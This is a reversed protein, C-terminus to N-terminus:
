RCFRLDTIARGGISVKGGHEGLPGDGYSSTSPEVNFCLESVRESKWLMM